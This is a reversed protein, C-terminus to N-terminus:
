RGLPLSDIFGAVKQLILAADRADVIGDENVDGWEIHIGPPLALGASDQLIITSDISNTEGDRNVDGNPLPEPTGTPTGVPQMPTVTATPGLTLTPTVSATPTVTATPTPTGGPNGIYIEYDNGPADDEERRLTVGIGYDEGEVATFTATVNDSATEVDIHLGPGRIELGINGNSNDFIVDVQVEKPQHLNFAFWDPDDPCARQDIRSYPLLLIGTGTIEIDDQELKDDVCTIATATPTPTVTPGGPTVTPPTDTPTAGGDKVLSLVYPTSQPSGPVSIALLEVRVAYTGAALATYTIKEDDTTSESSAIQTLNPAHLFIDINADPDHNFTADVQIEQGANLSFRYWDEDHECSIVGGSVYPPIAATGSGQTDNQELGDDKCTGPPGVAASPEALVWAAIVAVALLPAAVIFLAKM